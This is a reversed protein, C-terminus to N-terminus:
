GSQTQPVPPEDLIDAKLQFPMDPSSWGWALQGDDCKSQLAREMAEDWRGTLAAARLLLMGEANGEQWM